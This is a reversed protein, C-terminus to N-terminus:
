SPGTSPKGGARDDSPPTQKEATPGAERIRYELLYSATNEAFEDEAARQLIRAHEEAILFDLYKLQAAQLEEFSNAASLNERHKAFITLTRSM